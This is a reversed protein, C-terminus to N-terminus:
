GSEASPKSVAAKQKTRQMKQHELMRFPLSHFPPTEWSFKLIVQADPYEESTLKFLTKKENRLIHIGTVLDSVNWKCWDVAKLRGAPGQYFADTRGTGGKSIESSNGLYLLFKGNPEVIM